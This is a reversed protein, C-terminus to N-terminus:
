WSRKWRIALKSPSREPQTAPDQCLHRRVPPPPCCPTQWIPRKPRWPRRANAISRRQAPHTAGANVFIVDAPGGLDISVGDGAVVEVQALHALNRRSREALELDIEVGLVQGDLGVLEAFIATYYGVGCGVHVVREGTAVDAADIKFALFSPLGNHLERKRDIAVLVNHCLHRPDADSTWRYEWADGFRQPPWPIEWPGPGLYHERAVSAFASTTASSRVGAVVRVEEAYHERAEELSIM